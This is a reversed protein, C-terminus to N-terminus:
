ESRLAVPLDPVGTQAAAESAVTAEHNDRITKSLTFSAAIVFALGIGVYGKVWLDVPMNYVGFTTLLLSAGFSAWVQFIWASTDVQRFRNDRITKALTFTSGVTFFLGMTAYGKIWLPAPLFYIGVCAVVLALVFSLWVQLIWASTDRTVVSTSM